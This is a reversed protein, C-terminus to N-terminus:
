LNINKSQSLVNDTISPIIYGDKGFLNILYLM